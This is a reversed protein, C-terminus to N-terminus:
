DDFLSALLHVLVFVALPKAALTPLASVTLKVELLSGTAELRPSRTKELRNPKARWSLQSTLSWLAM